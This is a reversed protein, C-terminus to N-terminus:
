RIFWLEVTESIDRIKIWRPGTIQGKTIPVQGLLSVLHWEERDERPIYELGEIWEPNLQRLGENLICDGYDDRLYMDPWNMPANGVSASAGSKKPRVVGIISEPDDSETSARVMGTTSDNLVVTSGVPIITGSPVEFYEAYDAGGGNWGGDCYCNGDGKLDVARGNNSL